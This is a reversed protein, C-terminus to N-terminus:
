EKHKSASRSDTRQKMGSKCQGGAARGETQLVESREVSHPDCSSASTIEGSPAAASFGNSQGHLQPQSNSISTASCLESEYAEVPLASLDEMVNSAAVEMSDEEGEREEQSSVNTQVLSLQCGEEQGVM